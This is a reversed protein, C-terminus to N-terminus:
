FPVEEDDKPQEELAKTEGSELLPISQMSSGILGQLDGYMGATNQIVREIHKERKAWRRATSRKEEELDESMTKFAEMIAEVRQRFQPGTLYGFLVEMKEDKGAVALKTRSVQILL